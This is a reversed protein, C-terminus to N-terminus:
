NKQFPIAPKMKKYIFGCEIALQKYMTSLVSARIRVLAGPHVKVEPVFLFLSQMLYGNMLGLHWRLIIHRVTGRYHM